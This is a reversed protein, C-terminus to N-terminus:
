IVLTIGKPAIKTRSTEKPKMDNTIPQSNKKKKRQKDIEKNKNEKYRPEENNAGCIGM